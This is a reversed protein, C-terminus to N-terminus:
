FGLSTQMINLNNNTIM